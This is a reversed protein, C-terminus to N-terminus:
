ALPGPPSTVAAGIRRVERVLIDFDARTSRHNTIAARLAYRGRLTTYSPGAVGSEHLRLLVEQNVANLAADDLGPACYRFCVINLEVPAVLELDPADEVLEALYRAQAANQSILRGYKEVGHELLSMWIKLARLNRTLQIGYENPWHSGAAIGRTGHSELYEPTLSFARRHAEEDRVLVCGAEFQVYLWKHFDLAVSDARTMGALKPALDPALAALAGIAGDVHFWLGERQALDALATLDDVAGSNVTGANGIVCAPQLGAARDAALATELAAVDIRYADDVPILHLNESGVGLLEIAKQISSHAEVSAYYVLPARHGQLGARRVDFDAAVNRAVALAVLNAMSGGSVLLGSSGPPFGLLERTWDIVQREVYIGAHEGGGMNPNLGAALMEALMGLATGNGMVWSWFRPHVNGMPYPLVYNLFDEYILEPAKGTHPLPQQFFAKVADPVPQWVPRDRVTALWALMDDVMRHGLAAMHDWDQPDLNEEHQEM